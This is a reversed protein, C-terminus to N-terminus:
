TIEQSRLTRLVDRLIRTAAADHAAAASEESALVMGLHAELGHRRLPDPTMCAQLIVAMVEARNGPRGVADIVTALNRIAKWKLIPTTPCASQLADVVLRAARSEAPPPALLLAFVAAERDPETIPQRRGIPPASFIGPEREQSTPGGTTARGRRGDL